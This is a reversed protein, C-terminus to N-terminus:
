QRVALNTIPIRLFFVGPGGPQNLEVDYFVVGVNDRDLEVTRPCARGGIPRGPNYYEYSDNWTQGDDRSIRYRIREGGVGPGLIESALLWGNSLCVMEHRWGQEKVNPYDKITNWTKGEDISRLGQGSVFTGKPTRVLPVLGHVRDDGFKRPTQSAPDFLFTHDDLSVLWQGPQIEVLPHRIVSRVKPDRPFARPESWTLGDDGSISYIVSRPESENSDTSWRNWAHVIEGGALATLSGPYYSKGVTPAFPLPDSWTKGGDGSRTIRLDRHNVRGYTVVLTGRKTLCVAPHIHGGVADGIRVLASPAGARIPTVVSTALGFCTVSLMAGVVHLFRRHM